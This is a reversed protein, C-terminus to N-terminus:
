RGHRRSIQTVGFVGVLILMAALIGAAPSSLVPVAAACPRVTLCDPDLCDILNDNDNDIEDSCTEPTDEPV